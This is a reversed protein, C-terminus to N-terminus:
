RVLRVSMTTNNYVKEETKSYGGIFFLYRANKDGVQETAWFGYGGGDLFVVPYGVPFKKKRDYALKTRDPDYIAKYEAITPVRWDSFGAYRQGNIKDAWEMAENWSIPQRREINRFDKIMWILDTRKDRATGNEYLVWDGVTKSTAELKRNDRWYQFAEYVGFLLFAIVLYSVWRKKASQLSSIREDMELSKDTWESKESTLKKHNADIEKLKLTKKYEGIGESIVKKVLKFDLPKKLYRFAEGKNVVDEVLQPDYHATMLIRVTDPSYTKVKELLETGRMVPMRNDTLVVSIPGKDELMNLADEAEESVLLDYKENKLIKQAVTLIKKEDDVILVKYKSVM